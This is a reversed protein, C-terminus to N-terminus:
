AGKQETSAQAYEEAMHTLLRENRDAPTRHPCTSCYAGGETKYWYCCTARDLHVQTQERYTLAFLGIQNTNLLSGAVRIVGDVDAAIQEMSVTKDHEQTLWALNGAVSDAVNLWLGRPKCGLQACIRGIIAGLHAEIGERLVARLATLGPVIAADPHAAASDDPLAAFSGAVFAIGDAEGDANHHIRINEQRLDPVRRDILYCAVAAAVLPWQYGQLLASGIIAAARARLRAQASAIQAQFLASGPLFLDYTAHWGGDQPTGLEVRLH